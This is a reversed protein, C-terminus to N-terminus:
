DDWAGIAVAGQLSELGSLGNHVFTDFVEEETLGKPAADSLDIVASLHGRTHIRGQERGTCGLFVTPAVERWMAVAGRHSLRNGMEGLEARSISGIAGFIAGM